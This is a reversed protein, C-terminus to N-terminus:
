LSTIMKSQCYVTYKNSGDATSKIKNPTEVQEKVPEELQAHKLVDNEM